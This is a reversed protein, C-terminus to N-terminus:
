IIKIISLTLTIIILVMTAALCLGLWAIMRNKGEVSKLLNDIMGQKTQLLGEFFSVRSRLQTITENDKNNLDELESRLRLCNAKEDELKEVLEPNDVYVTEKEALKTLACPYNGWEGNVLAKSVAQM